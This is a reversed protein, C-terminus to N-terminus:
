KLQAIRNKGYARDAANSVKDYARSIDDLSDNIEKYREVVDDKDTKDIAEPESDSGSDSSSSDDSEL